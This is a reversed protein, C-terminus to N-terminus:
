PCGAQLSCSFSVLGPVVFLFVSGTGAGSGAESGERGLTLSAISGSCEAVLTPVNTALVAASSAMFGSSVGPKLM